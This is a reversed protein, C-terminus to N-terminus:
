GQREGEYFRKEWLMGTSFKGWTKTRTTPLVNRVFDHLRCITVSPDLCSPFHVWGTLDTSVDEDFHLFSSLTIQAAFDLVCNDGHWCVEVVWLSLHSAILIKYCKSVLTQWIGAQSEKNLQALAKPFQYTTPTRRRLRKIKYADQKLGVACWDNKRWLLVLLSVKQDNRWETTNVKCAVFSAPCIAPNFTRRTMLSGVAAARAYPKSLDSSLSYSIMKTKLRAKSKEFIKRHHSIM